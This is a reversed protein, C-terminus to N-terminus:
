GSAKSVLKNLYPSIMTAVRREVGDPRDEFWWLATQAGVFLGAGISVDVFLRAQLPLAQTFPLLPQLGLFWFAMGGVGFISRRAVLFPRFLNDNAVQAYLILQLVVHFLCTGTAALVAGLLGYNASAWIFIPLKLTTFALERVFVLRTKDRAIAYYHTSLLLAQIGFAPALYKLVPVADGWKEGLVLLVLDDAVFSAGFAAPLAIAAVAAVGGLFAQRMEEARGRMESLGPYIARAVPDALESTILGALQSGLSYIGTAPLGIFRALIFNDLKNNLSVVFSIGTLWGSFGLVRRWAILTLRPLYPRVIFSVLMQVFGGALLGLILAWYSRFVLAIGISVMVSVVKDAVTAIFERSFDLEREFEYFRPNILGLFVPYFAIGTFIFILRPDDYFSAAIPGLCFLLLAIVGARIVSLTFLTDYDNRDADHFKVVAQALGINSFGQVLQMASIGVAVLGFDEPVLLRAVIIMNIFGIGRMLFRAGVLWATGKAVRATLSASNNEVPEPAAPSNM